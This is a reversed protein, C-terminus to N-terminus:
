FNIRVRAKKSSKNNLNRQNSKESNDWKPGNQLLKIAISDNVNGASNTVEINMPKGEGSIDFTLEVLDYKNNQETNNAKLLDINNKVYDNFASWGEKPNIEENIKHTNQLSAAANVKKHITISQSASNDNKNLSDTSISTPHYNQLSFDKSAMKDTNLENLQSSQLEATPTYISNTSNKENHVPKQKLQSKNIEDSFNINYHVKNEANEKIEGNPRNESLPKKEENISAPVQTIKKQPVEKEALALYFLYNTIFALLIAAAIWSFQKKKETYLAIIKAQKQQKLIYQQVDRLEKQAIVQNQKSYGEIADALFSDELAALDMAYMENHSLKGQLYQEIDAITYIKNPKSKPM